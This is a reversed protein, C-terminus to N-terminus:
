PVLGIRSFEDGGINVIVPMNALTEVNNVATPQKFLGGGANAPFPPKLRPYGKRGELSELLATEEGCIYAGAGFVAHIELDFGSGLINKGVYGAERAEDIAQQLRAMASDRFEGRCYVYTVHCDIAYSGIVTGEVFLHPSRLLIERDKFTGPEGEDANVVLYKPVSTEKRVFNWKMGTPFGAGGRGRLNSKVVEDVIQQPQMRLAKPLAQYGGGSRYVSLTWSQPKDWDATLIRPGTM